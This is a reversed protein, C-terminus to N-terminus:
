VAVLRRARKLIGYGVRVEISVLEFNEEDLLPVERSMYFVRGDVVKTIKKKKQHEM